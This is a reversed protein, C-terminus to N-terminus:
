KLLSENDSMSRPAKCVFSPLPIEKHLEPSLHELFFSGSALFKVFVIHFTIIINKQTLYFPLSVCM